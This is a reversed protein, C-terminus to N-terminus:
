KNFVLQYNEPSPMSPSDGAYTKGNFDVSTNNFPNGLLGQSSQEDWSKLATEYKPVDVVLISKGDSSSVYTATGNNIKTLTEYDGKAQLETYKKVWSDETGSGGVKAQGIVKKYKMEGTAKDIGVVTINGQGDTFQIVNLAADEAM